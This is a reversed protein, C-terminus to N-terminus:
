DKRFLEEESKKLRYCVREIFSRNLPAKGTAIRCLYNLSFGTKKHLWKRTYTEFLAYNQKEPM